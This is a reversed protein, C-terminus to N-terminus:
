RPLPEARYLARTNRAASVAFALVLGAIAIAGGIDFLNWPGLGAVQVVPRHMLAIAGAALVLRLETPGFGLFSMRFVGQVHTALFTEAMVALYAALLAFALLPTMFGSLALGGVLMTTGAVDIVHDLYYGYRPRQQNRVRALTGDLSDGLWNVALAVVVLWLAPPFAAGAAFGAAAGAMGILGLASLHDSSVRRPMRRAMWLLARKESAALLSENRRSHGAAPCGPAQARGGNLTQANATM